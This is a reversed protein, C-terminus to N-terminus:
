PGEDNGGCSAQACSSLQAELNMARGWAGSGDPNAGGFVNWFQNRSVLAVGGRLM